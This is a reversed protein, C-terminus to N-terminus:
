LIMTLLLAYEIDVVLNGLTKAILVLANMDSFMFQYYSEHEQEKRSYSKWGKADFNDDSIKYTVDVEIMVYNFDQNSFGYMRGM